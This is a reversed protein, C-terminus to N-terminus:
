APAGRRRIRALARYGIDTPIRGSSTHPSRLYGEGELVSLENRVTAPSVGLEYRDVLTRSGVPQAYAVYEEILAELVRQRRSSLM